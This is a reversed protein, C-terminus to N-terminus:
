DEVVKELQQTVAEFENVLESKTANGDKLSETTARLKISIGKLIDINVKRPKSRRRRKLKKEKM